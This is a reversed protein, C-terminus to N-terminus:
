ENANGLYKFHQNMIMKKLVDLLYSITRRSHLKMLDM